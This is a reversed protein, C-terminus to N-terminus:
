ECPMPMSNSVVAGSVRSVIREDSESQFDRPTAKFTEELVIPRQSSEVPKDMDIINIQEGTELLVKIYLNCRLIRM